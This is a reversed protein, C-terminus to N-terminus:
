AIPGGYVMSQTPDAGSAIVFVPKSVLTVLPQVNAAKAGAEAVSDRSTVVAATPVEDAFTCMLAAVVTSQYTLRVLTPWSATRTPLLSEAVNQHLALEGRIM